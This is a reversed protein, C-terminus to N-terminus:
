APVGDPLVEFGSLGEPEEQWSRVRDVRAADSGRAAWESMRHVPEPEGEFVAEVQGNTLNRVWGAVGAERAARRCTDRFFVGQVLGTVLVHTRVSM